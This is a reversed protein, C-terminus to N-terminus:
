FEFTELFAAIGHRQEAPKTDDMLFSNLKGKFDEVWRRRVAAEDDIAQLVEKFAALTEELAQRSVGVETGDADLQRQCTRLANIAPGAERLPWTGRQLPLRLASYGDGRTVWEGPLSISKGEHNDIEVFQGVGGPTDSDAFVIDIFATKKDTAM